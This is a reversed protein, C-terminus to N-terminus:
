VRINQHDLLAVLGDELAERALAVQRHLLGHLRLEKDDPRECGGSYEEFGRLGSVLRALQQSCECTGRTALEMLRGLQEPNFRPPRPARPLGTVNSLRPEEILRSVHVRLLSLALPGQVFRVRTSTLVSLLAQDTIRYSVLAHRAGTQDMLEPILRPAVQGLDTFDLALVNPRLRPVEARFSDRSEGVWVVELEGLARPNVRLQSPYTDGLLALKAM